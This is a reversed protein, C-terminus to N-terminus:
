ASSYLIFSIASLSINTWQAFSTIVISVYPSFLISLGACISIFCTIGTTSQTELLFELNEYQNDYGSINKKLHYAAILIHYEEDLSCDEFLHTKGDNL